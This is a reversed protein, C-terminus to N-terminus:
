GGRASSDRIGKSQEEEDDNKEEVKKEPDRLPSELSSEAGLIGFGLGKRGRIDRNELECLRKVGKPLSGTGRYSSTSRLGGYTPRAIAQNTVALFLTNRTTRTAEYSCLAFSPCPRKSRDPHWQRSSGTGTVALSPSNATGALFLWLWSSLSVNNSSGGNMALAIVFVVHLTVFGLTAM